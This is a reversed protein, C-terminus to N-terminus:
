WKTAAHFTSLGFLTSILGGVMLSQGLIPVSLNTLPLLDEVNSDNASHYDQAVLGKDGTDNDGDSETDSDSSDTVSNNRVGWTYIGNSPHCWLHDDVPVTVGTIFSADDSALFAITVAVEDPQGPRGLAHTTKCRELFQFSFWMNKIM